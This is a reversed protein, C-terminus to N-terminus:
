NEKNNNREGNHAYSNPANRRRFESLFRSLQVRQESTLPPIAASHKAAFNKSNEDTAKLHRVAAMHNEALLENIADQTAKFYILKGVTGFIFIGGFIKWVRYQEQNLKNWWFRHSKGSMM